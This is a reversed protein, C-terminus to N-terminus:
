LKMNQRFITMVSTLMAKTVIKMCKLMKWSMCFSADYFTCEQCWFQTYSIIYGMQFYEFSTLQIYAFKTISTRNHVYMFKTGMKECSNWIKKEWNQIKVKCWFEAKTIIKWTLSFLKLVQFKFFTLNRNHVYMVFSVFSLVKLDQEKFPM